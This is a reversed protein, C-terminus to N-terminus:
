APRMSPAGDDGGVGFFVEFTKSRCDSLVDGVDHAMLLNKFGCRHPVSEIAFRTYALANRREPHALSHSFDRASGFPQEFM